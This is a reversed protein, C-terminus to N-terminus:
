SAPNSSGHIEKLAFRSCLVFGGLLVAGGAAAVLVLSVWGTPEGLTLTVCNSYAWLAALPLLQPGITRKLLTPCDMQLVRAAYPLLILLEITAVPIATGLAVGLLGLPWILAVSLGINAIAEFVLLLAPLRVQGMGFLVGRIVNIPTAMIQSGLLVLLLMHSDSYGTGVWTQLLGRGFFAAGIFMGCTLLLALGAGKTVLTHLEDRASRAALEGARPMFVHGIYHIPKVIFKCLRLAIYYPVTAKAGLLLGIVVTDSLDIVQYAIADLFAYLSFSVCERFTTRDIHRLRVSLTPMSRYAFVVHGVNEAVTVLLFIAALKMLGWQSSLFALTLVLRLLASSLNIGREVDFRQLGILVGGFVSGVMGVLVNLGLLLIVVRVEVISQGGWDYLHPTLWSLVCATLFAVAGLSSYTAFVVSVIRNMKTSDGSAHTAAVYRCITQGFGLYLLGSYGAVSNIFIWTGYAGDGLMHLVYPMLFFGVGLGVAHALWSSALNFKLSTRKM